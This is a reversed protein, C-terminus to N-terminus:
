PKQWRLARVVLNLAEVHAPQAMAREPAADEDDTGRVGGSGLAAAALRKAADYASPHIRTADLPEAEAEEDAASSAGSAPVVRIFSGCNRRARPM